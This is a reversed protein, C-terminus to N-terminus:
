LLLQIQWPQKVWNFGTIQWIKSNNSVISFVKVSQQSGPLILSSVKMSKMEKTPWKDLELRMRLPKERVMSKNSCYTHWITNRKCNQSSSMPRQLRQMRIMSQQKLMLSILNLLEMQLMILYEKSYLLNDKLTISWIMKSLKLSSLLTLM